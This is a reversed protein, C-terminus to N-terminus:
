TKNGISWKELASIQRVGDLFGNCYYAHSVISEKAAFVDDIQKRLKVDSIKKLIADIENKLITDTKGDIAEQRKTTFEQYDYEFEGPQMISDTMINKVSQDM